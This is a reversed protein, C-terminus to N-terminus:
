SRDDYLHERRLQDGPINTGTVARALFRKLAALRQAVTAADAPASSLLPRIDVALAADVPLDVPEDPIIVTGNFHARITM